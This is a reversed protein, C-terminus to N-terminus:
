ASYRTRHRRSPPKGDARAVPEPGNVFRRKGAKGHPKPGVAPQWYGRPDKLSTGVHELLHASALRRLSNLATPRSLGLLEMAETTTVRRVRSLHEVFRESGIPLLQLMHGFVSEFLFTVRVSAPGERYIPAPFGAREMEEFMRDVGEGLERGYGLDAMARAIRPNRAFRTSRINEIRVLGPLRGPSEVELRDDFAEIRIHDGGLSYSRHVVANVVAELWAAEPLVPTPKFRGGEHLRTLSPLLRRLQRRVREIQASLPGAVRADQQVNARSGTQRSVGRYRLVRVTAEPLYRQPEPCLLLIGAVTPGAVDGRSALLGRAELVGDVTAARGRLLRRVYSDILRDDFDSRCAEVLLQGDFISQGKDFDLERAATVSLRRNEDGIRLYTEGKVTRHVHESVPTEILVLHDAEGQSNSCPLLEFRHRVSPDTFNAAAQRWENIKAKGASDVGEVVGNEIGIVVLGGEANALGALLEGIARAETRRSKREFWQDEVRDLLSEVRREESLTTLEELTLPTLQRAM